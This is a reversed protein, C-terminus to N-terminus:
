VEGSANMEPESSMSPRTETKASQHTALTHQFSMRPPKLRVMTPQTPM